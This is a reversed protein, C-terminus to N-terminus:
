TQRYARKKSRKAKPFLPIASLPDLKYYLRRLLYGAERATYDMWYGPSNDRFEPLLIRNLVHRKLRIWKRSSPFSSVADVISGIDICHVEKDLEWLRKSIVRSAMGATPLILEVQDAHDLIEPWWSDMEAYANKRPVEVYYDVPGILKRIEQLPVSGIFMKKRPRIYRDLFQNMKRPSFVSYYNPFIASEFVVPSSIKLEGALFDQMERDYYFTEFIGKTAGKERPANVMLGRLFQPDEISLCQLIEGALEENFEHNAQRRGMVIFIDGDGLRTYYVKKHRDLMDCLTHCTERASKSRILDQNEM